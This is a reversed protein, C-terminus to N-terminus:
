DVIERQLFNISHSCRALEDKGRLSGTGGTQGLIWLADKLFSLIRDKSEARARDTASVDTLNLSNYPASFTKGDFLYDPFRDVIRLLTRYPVYSLVGFGEPEKHQFKMLLSSNSLLAIVCEEVEGASEHICDVVKKPCNELSVILRDRLRDLVSTAKEQLTSKDVRKDSMKKEILMAYVIGFDPLRDRAKFREALYSLLIQRPDIPYSTFLVHRPDYFFDCDVGDQIFLSPVSNGDKLISESILEWVKVSLAPADSYSYAGSWSVIERSRQLLVDVSTTEATPRAPTVVPSQVPPTPQNVVEPGYDDIEDSPTAGADVTAASDAGHSANDKDAEQASLWWKDDDVYETDNKKFHDLFSRATSKDIYLCKTGPDVRRYANALLGIPSTNAGDFMMAKRDKPLIPGIGRLAEITENWSPDTRDFDNKQYTPLLYDVHIEGVIRGGVTSGLEVPYELKSTGTLPNTWSFLDKNSILIKRGNRIFDIGFDNPDAYRQIGVWGTLRKSREVIHSPLVGSQTQRAIEATEEDSLYSNREIDFLSTGLDRNIKIVAPIKNGERTVYRTEGWICHRRPSLRKGQLLVEVDIKGLITSYINELQRRIHAEQDRLMVYTEGKLRSVIIRTGHENSRKKPIQILKAEYSKSRILESFDIELGIWEDSEMTASLIKTNEGLRATAINFGMGFLGLNHIPDNSSYGARAANQIQSIDMGRGTDEIELVRSQSAVSDSSWTISIRKEPFEIGSNAVEAFADLSNDALEAICQWPQFPIEGLTRLIRPSPTIDITNM